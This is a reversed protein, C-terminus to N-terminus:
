PNYRERNVESGHSSIKREFAKDEKNMGKFIMVVRRAGEGEMVWKFGLILTAVLFQVFYQKFVFSLAFAFVAGLLWKLGPHKKKEKIGLKKRVKDKLISPCKKQSACSSEFAVVLLDLCQNCVSIHQEIRKREIETLREDLYSSLQRENLCDM